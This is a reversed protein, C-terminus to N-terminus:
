FSEDSDLDWGCTETPAFDARKDYEFDSDSPKVQNALFNVDMKGKAKALGADSLHNLDSFTNQVFTIIMKIFINNCDPSGILAQM